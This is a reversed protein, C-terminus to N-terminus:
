STVRHIDGLHEDIRESADRTRHVACDVSQGFVFEDLPDVIVRVRDAPQHPMETPDLVVVDRVDRAGFLDPDCPSPVFTEAQREIWAVGTVAM